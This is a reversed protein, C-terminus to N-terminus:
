ACEVCVQSESKRQDMRSKPSVLSKAGSAVHIIADDFLLKDLSLQWRSRRSEEIPTSRDKRRSVGVKRPLKWRKNIRELLM